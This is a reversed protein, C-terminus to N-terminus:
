PARKARIMLLVSYYLTGALGFLFAGWFNLEPAANWLWAGVLSGPTVILDRALYYAGVVQGQKAGSSYKIILAKRAPEGFEKLGRIVFAAVLWPITNAHILFLPFLTFFIFTAMVFLERGYRDSVYAVPIFCIM